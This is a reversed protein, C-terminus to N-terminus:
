LIHYHSVAQEAELSTQPIKINHARLFTVRRKIEALYDDRRASIVQKTEFAYILRGLRALNRKIKEHTEPNINIPNASMKNNEKTQRMALKLRVKEFFNM